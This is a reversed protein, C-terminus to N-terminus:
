MGVLQGCRVLSRLSYFYTLAQTKEMKLSRQFNSHGEELSFLTANNIQTTIQFWSCTFQGITGTRQFKTIYYWQGQSTSRSEVLLLIQMIKTIQQIMALVGTLKYQSSWYLSPSTSILDQRKCTFSKTM